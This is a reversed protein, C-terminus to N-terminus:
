GAIEMLTITSAGRYSFDTNSADSGTTNIRLNSASAEIEGQVKYTLASTSSPSDLFSMPVVWSANADAPSRMGGVTASNYGSVTNGAGIVTAGRLIRFMCLYGAISSGGVLTVIVFIKSSTSSPTITASLGTIDTFTTSTTSFTDTKTTSVVQLVSGPINPSGTGAVNSIANVKLTSM